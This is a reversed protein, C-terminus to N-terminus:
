DLALASIIRLWYEQHAIEPRPPSKRSRITEKPLIMANIIKGYLAELREHGLDTNDYLTQMVAKKIHESDTAM